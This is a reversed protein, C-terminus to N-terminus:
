EKVSMIWQLMDGDEPDTLICFPTAGDPIEIFTLDHHPLKNLRSNLNDTRPNVKVLKGNIVYYSEGNEITIVEDDSNIIRATDDDLNSLPVSGVIFRSM